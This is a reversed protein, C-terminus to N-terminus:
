LALGAAGRSVLLVECLGAAGRSVLGLARWWCRCWSAWVLLSALVECLVLLRPLVECLVSLRALQLVGRLVSLSALPCVECVM